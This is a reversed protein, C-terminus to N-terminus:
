RESDISLIAILHNETLCIAPHFDGMVTWNCFNFRAALEIMKM